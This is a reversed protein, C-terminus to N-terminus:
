PTSACSRAIGHIHRRVGCNLPPASGQGARLLRMIFHRAQQACAVVYSRGSWSSTLRCHRYGWPRFTSLIGVTGDQALYLYSTEERGTVTVVGRWVSGFKAESPIKDSFEGFESLSRIHEWGGREPSMHEAAWPVMSTESEILWDYNDGDALSFIHAQAATIRAGSPLSLGTEVEVTDLAMLREIQSRWILWGSAAAVAAVGLGAAAVYAILKLNGGLAATSRRRSLTQLAGRTCLSPVCM